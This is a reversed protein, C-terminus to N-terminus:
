HIVEGSKGGLSEQQNAFFDFLADRNSDINELVNKMDTLLKEFDDMSAAINKITERLPLKALSIM